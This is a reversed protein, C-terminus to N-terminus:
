RGGAAPNLANLAAINIATDMTNVAASFGAELGATNGSAGPALITRTQGLGLPTQVGNQDTFVASGSVVEVTTGDGDVDNCPDSADKVRKTQLDKYDKHCVMINLETGRVGITGNPTKIQYSQHAMSGTVFRFVGESATLF